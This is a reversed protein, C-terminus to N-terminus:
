VSKRWAKEGTIPIMDEVDLSRRGVGYVQVLYKGDPQQGYIMGRHGDVLVECGPHFKNEMDFFM